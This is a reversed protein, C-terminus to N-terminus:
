SELGHSGHSAAVSGDLFDKEKQCIFPTTSALVRSAILCHSKQPEGVQMESCFKKKASGLLHTPQTSVIKVFQKAAHHSPLYGGILM